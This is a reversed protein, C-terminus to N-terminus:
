GALQFLSYAANRYVLVAGPPPPRDASIVAFYTGYTGTLQLESPRLKGLLVDSNQRLARARRDPSYRFPSYLMWTVIFFQRRSILAYDNWGGLRKETDDTQDTFILSDSPTRDRVALWIDRMEPTLVYVDNGPAGVPITRTPVVGLAVTPLIVALTMALGIATAQQGPHPAAALHPSSRVFLAVIVVFLLTLGWAIAITHSEPEAFWPYPILTLLAASLGLRSRAFRDPEEILALATVLIVATLTAHFLYPLVLYFIVGSWAAFTLGTVRMRSAAIALLIAGCSRAIVLRDRHLTLSILPAYDPLYTALMVAVYVAVFGGSIAGFVAVRWNMRSLAARALDPLVLPVLVNFMVVKSVASGIVATGLAKGIKGLHDGAARWLYVTSIIIPLAFAVPPSEVIESPHRPAVTVLAAVFWLPAGSLRPKGTRWASDLMALMVGLSLVSMVVLSASMFLFQDFWRQPLPAAMILAPLMDGYGSLTAGEVGLNRLPVLQESLMIAWHFYIISDGWPTGALTSTPGHFTFAMMSALLLIEPLVLALVIVARGAIAQSPRYRMLPLLSGVMIPILLWGGFPVYVTVAAAAAVFLTGPLFARLVLDDLPPNCRGVLLILGSGTGFIVATLLLGLLLHLGIDLVLAGDSTTSSISRILLASGIVAAGCGAYGSVSRIGKLRNLLTAM